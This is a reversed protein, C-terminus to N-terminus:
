GHLIVFCTRNCFCTKTQNITSCQQGQQLCQRMSFQCLHLVCGIWCSSSDTSYQCARDITDVTHERQSGPLGHIDNPLFFHTLSFTHISLLFSTHLTELRFPIQQCNYGSGVFHTVKYKNGRGGKKTKRERVRM